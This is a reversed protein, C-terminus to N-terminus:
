ASVSHFGIIKTKMQTIKAPKKKTQKQLAIFKFVASTLPFMFEWHVLSLSLLSVPCNTARQICLATVRMNNQLTGKLPIGKRQQKVKGQPSGTVIRWSKERRERNAPHAPIRGIVFTQGSTPLYDQLHHTQVNTCAVDLYKRKLRHM